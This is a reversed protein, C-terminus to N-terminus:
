SESTVASKIARFLKKTLGDSQKKEVSLNDTKFSGAIEGLTQFVMERPNIRKGTKKELENIVRMSLLSHGGLDFFNDSSSIQEIDLVETWIAAIMKEMPTEPSVNTEPATWSADPEPLRKRDIKGNPTLPFEEMEMFFSPIMYDPLSKKLDARLESVSIAVTPNPIYYAALRKDGPKDERAIVVSSQIAAHQNLQTEIEGLEIRFGRIKVQFDTRGLCEIEGDSSYRALDGTKYILSQEDKFPNPIFVSKTLDTRNLYGISLGDGGIYLDGPIGVPVPVLNKDLIYIDTNAIPRGILIREDGSKIEKVTSWITTETPGYMNWLSRCRPILQQALDKTLAEGGCLIKLNKSGEWGSEILLHWTSPTAQMVSVPYDALLEVLKRGDQVEENGAVVVQGGSILPLFIELVSIDFSITTVALLVDEARFGPQDDRMSWLFNVVSRHKIQVGKPHGTSGSTYIVYAPQDSHFGQVPRNSSERSIEGWDSDLYITEAETEGLQESLSECTLIMKTGSDEVLYQIREKPFMPDIPIYAAGSKLVGLLGIFMQPSRDMYIGIYDGAKSGNKILYNALQNARKDLERYSLSSPSGNDTSKTSSFFVAQKSDGLRDVHLEFLEHLCADAPYESQTDNWDELILKKEKESLLGLQSIEKDPDVLIESLLNQFHETLRRITSEEFLDTNYELEGTIQHEDNYMDLAMDFRSTRIDIPLLSTKLAPLNLNADLNGQHLIFLIQFIPNRSMDREPHLVDLLKEFHIDKNDFASQVELRNHKLADRFTPNGSFNIHLVLNNSFNGLLVETESHNRDSVATAILIDEQGSYRYLLAQFVTQLMVFLTVDERKCFSKIKETQSEPIKFFCLSGRHLEVPPRLHDTPLDLTHPLKELKKVWYELQKKLVPSNSHEKEWFTYDAYQISPKVLQQKENSLYSHYLVNLEEIFIRISWGDAVLHHTVVLLYNLEEDLHILAVRFCQERDIEFARGSEEEVIKKSKADREGEPLNSLDIIKLEKYVFESIYQEVNGNYSPFYTRMIEHRQVITNISKELVEINLMGSFRIAFPVNYVSSMPEIQYLFWFRQQVLSLPIKDEPNRHEITAAPKENEKLSSAESREKEKYFQAISEVTQLRFIDGIRLGGGFTKEMENAIRVIDMSNAGLQLLNTNIPVREIKLIKAVIESVRATYTTEDNEFLDSEDVLFKVPDPLEKRNVKGNSTLPMKELVIFASPVMYFPLKGQLYERVQQDEIKLGPKPVIYAVLRKDGHQEGVAIVVAYGINGHQMLATEIEELEVRYGQIKVQFDERGLFEINGDPLFRGLDGTRYLRDGTQPHIIFSANTKESDKWYGKALGIGGIYLQGPVWVPCVALADNLVYFQQNVMPQGYPISRWQPDVKGIPYIISWISAETAGGMSIVEIDGFCSRIQDPLTVPIWDGSMLVARLTSISIEDHASVYEVLLKMLAPVSNWITVNNEIVLRAWAAPDRTEDADPMIITGGAALTGFIDYVSLDFSLSSLALIRDNSEVSFRSNVDLVTNVAGRHDIIVGKPLGTSGSTFIVYALDSNNQIISLPTDEFNSFDENDISLIKMNEPWELSKALSSQTLIFEVDSCELLYHMREKPLRGDIPLYAAGSALIGLVAPVQEWGKDMVVAVLTNPQAGMQRLGNGIKNSLHYLENYSLTRKASVLAPRDYQQPVQKYFLAHLHEDSVEAFTKNIENRQNLQWSPLLLQATEFWTMQWVNDNELLQHMLQGHGNAMDDLLGAPFIEELCDWVIILAGDIEVVNVDMWVQPTQTIGYGYEGIWGTPDPAHSRSEHTITSTFVVPMEAKRAGGQRKALERLVEVGSFYRHDLDNWLQQQLQKAREVFPMDSHKVELLTITTFDGAIDNVQPHLPIRNFVTLNITFRPNKSWTKLVEAFIAILLGSPTLGKQSLAQRLKQWNEASFNIRRRVFRPTTVMSPEKALPLEPAPPMIELRKQWYNLSKKYLQSERIKSEALVYDRFSIELPPLESDPNKYLQEWERFLILSSEYDLNLADFSMHLRVRHKDLRTARIEFIPWKDSPLVQHSMQQRISMLMDKVFHGEQRSLDLEKIKYVLNGDLTQQQGDTLVITRLMEHRDILKQWAMELLNLDLDVSEIEMYRHTSINGLELFGTRGIWYAQQIDTLPFPKYRNEPAPEIEPFPTDVTKEKLKKLRLELLARKEPSLSAIRQSYDDM